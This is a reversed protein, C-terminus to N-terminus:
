PDSGGPFRRPENQLNNAKIYTWVKSVAETRPLRGAGVIAALDESPQLPKQLANPAKGKSLADSNAEAGADMEDFPPSNASM